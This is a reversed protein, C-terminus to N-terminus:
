SQMRLIKEQTNNSTRQERVMSAMLEMISQNAMTSEKIAAVMSTLDISSSNSFPTTVATEAKADTFSKTMDQQSVMNFFENVKAPFAVPVNGSELPIVAEPGHLLALMGSSKSSPVVGGKSFSALAEDWGIGAKNNGVGAYRSKGSADSPLGAWEAALNSLFRQKADATGSALYQDYGRRKILFDAIDDQTKEDFKQDRSLGMKGVADNLTSYKVQYKGSASDKQESILKRQMNLVEQITMTTLPATQGGVIVNYNGQSEVSGILERINSLQAGQEPSTTGYGLSKTGMGTPNTPNASTVSTTGDGGGGSGGSGGAKGAGPLLGTARELATAFAATAKTAPEVGYRVFDQMNHMTQQQVIALRVQRATEKDKAEKGLGGMEDITKGVTIRNKKFGGTLLFAESEIDEALNGFVKNYNQQKGQTAGFTKLAVVQSQLIRDAADASDLNTETLEQQVRMAEGQTGRMVRQSAETSLNGSVIDAFGDALAKNKSALYKYTEELKAAKLAGEPGQSMLEYRKAAFIERRRVEDILSQQQQRNLGTVQTLAEQEVLYKRTSEALDNVTRNQTLGVKSQLSIYGITADNIEDQTMGLNMLSRKYPEMAQGLNAFDKRGKAVNGSMTSLEKSSSSILGVFKDLDQVGLGLKQM